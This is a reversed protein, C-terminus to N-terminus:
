KSNEKFKFTIYRSQIVRIKHNQDKKKIYTDYKVLPFLNTSTPNIINQTKQSIHLPNKHTKHQQM